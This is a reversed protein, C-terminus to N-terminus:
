DLGPDHGTRDCHQLFDGYTEFEQGCDCDYGPGGDNHGTADHHQALAFDTDFERGCEDCEYTM